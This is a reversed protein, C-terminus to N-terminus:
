QSYKDIEKGLMNIITKFDKKLIEQKENMNEILWDLYQPSDLTFTGMHTFIMIETNNHLNIRKSHAILKDTLSNNQIRNLRESALAGDLATKSFETLLLEETVGNRVLRFKEGTDVTIKNHKVESLLTKLTSVYMSKDRKEEQWRYTFISILAAIVLGLLTAIFNPIFEQWFNFDGGHGLSIDIVLLEMGGIYVVNNM